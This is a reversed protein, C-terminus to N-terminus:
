SRETTRAHGPPVSDSEPWANGLTWGDRVRDPRGLWLASRAQQIDPGPRSQIPLALGRGPRFDPLEAALCTKM